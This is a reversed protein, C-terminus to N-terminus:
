RLSLSQFLAAGLKKAQQYKVATDAQGCLKTLTYLEQSAAGGAKGNRLEEGGSQWLLEERYNLSHGLFGKIGVPLHTVPVDQNQHTCEQEGFFTM